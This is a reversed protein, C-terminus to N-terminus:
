ATEDFQYNLTSTSGATDAGNTQIQHVLFDSQGPAALSGTLSGGIGLNAGAPESTPMTQTAKVSTTTTPTTFTEAGAYATERANTLHAAAGGLAGARFIKLNDILSSGGMSTVDIKQFKEMTNNGPTVPNAVPDTTPSDETSMDTDPINHTTSGPATGNQEDIEVTAAM